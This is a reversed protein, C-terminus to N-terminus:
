DYYQGTYKMMPKKTSYYEPYSKVNEVHSQFFERSGVVVEEPGHEGLWWITDGTTCTGNLIKYIPEEPIKIGFEDQLYKKQEETFTILPM